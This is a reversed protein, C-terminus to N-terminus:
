CHEFDNCFAWRSKEKVKKEKWGNVIQPFLDIKDILSADHALVVLINESADLEIIKRITDEAEEFEPFMTHSLRFFPERASQRPHLKVLVEGPCMNSYSSIPSPRVSTPIPLYDTPRILGAHHCADAGMFVFSDPNCTVRALGCIHGISHGPANLLYFSGDGFFDLADFGGIKVAQSSFDVEQVIKGHFDADLVAADKRTPYGPMYQQKFGPGVILATSSPFLSPDGIHDFHHHSLIISDIDESKVGLVQDANLIESLNSETEVVTTKEILAVISPAYNRWDKRVGLDFM